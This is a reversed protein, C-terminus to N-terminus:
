EEKTSTELFYATGVAVIIVLIHHTATYPHVYTWGLWLGFQGGVCKPCAFTAKFIKEQWPKAEVIATSGTVVLRVMKPWWDFVEGPHILVSSFLWAWSGLILGVTVQEIIATLNTLGLILHEM